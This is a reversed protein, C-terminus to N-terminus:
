GKLLSFIYNFGNSEKPNVIEMEGIYVNEMNSFDLGNPNKPSLKLSSCGWGGSLNIGKKLDRVQMGNSKQTKAEKQNTIIKLGFIKCDKSLGFSIYQIEKNNQVIDRAGGKLSFMIAKKTCDKTISVYPKAPTNNKSTVKQAKTAMILQFMINGKKRIFYRIKSYAYLGVRTM